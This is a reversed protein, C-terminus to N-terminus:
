RQFEPIDPYLCQFLCTKQRFFWSVVQSIAYNGNIERTTELLKM